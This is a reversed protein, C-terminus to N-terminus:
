IAILVGTLCHLLWSKTEMFSKLVLENFLKTDHCYTNLLFASCVINFHPMTEFYLIVTLCGVNLLVKKKTDNLYFLLLSLASSVSFHSVYFYLVILEIGLM